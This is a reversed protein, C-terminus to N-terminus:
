LGFKKIILTTIIVFVVELGAFFLSIYPVKWGMNKRLQDHFPFRINKFLNLKSKTVRLLALKLLGLGGDFIFVLSLILFSFPHRSMMALIALWFGITRSGADGMLVKSPNWNYALYAVLVFAFVLGAASFYTRRFIYAYGVFEIASVSGCLGDVGDSCNTVNISAWILATALAVYVVIPIHIVNGFFVVDTSNFLVFTVAATVAMVLDLIGKILEGWPAKASDDLYGTMMMLFSLCLFFAFGGSEKHGEMTFSVPFVLFISLLWVIVLVIGVGTVKGDSGKNVEVKNGDKDIVFKGGDRPLFGFPKILLVFTLVFALVAALVVIKNEGLKSSLINYLM